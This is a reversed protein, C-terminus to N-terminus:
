AARNVKEPKSEHSQFKEAQQWQDKGQATRKSAGTVKGIQTLRCTSIKRRLQLALDTFRDHIDDPLALGTVDFIRFDIIVQLPDPPTQDFGAGIRGTIEIKKGNTVVRDIGKGHKTAKDADIGASDQRRLRFGFQRPHNCVFYGMHGLVM